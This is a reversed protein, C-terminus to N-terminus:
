FIIILFVINIIKVLVEKLVIKERLIIRNEMLIKLPLCDELGTLVAALIHLNILTRGSWNPCCM